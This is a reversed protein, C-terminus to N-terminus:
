KEPDTAAKEAADKEAAILKDTAVKDVEAYDGSRKIERFRADTVTLKDGSKHKIGTYRDVFEKKVVICVKKM